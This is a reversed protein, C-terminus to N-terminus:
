EEQERVKSLASAVLGAPISVVGLGLMLIVFTFARGGATVPYVDGYGVTTLTTVAWWMSHFVSAFAEPQAEQEFYYIGVSAFYILLLTVLFFLVIEERAIQLARHFRHVARSYRALKLTRCLRMFRLARISRLDVRSAAYFPLISMLDILGYFSFIFALKRRAVAVRVVYEITFVTVTVVEIGRLWQQASDSLDPLTEISFTILSIVILSQIVLDFIRGRKSANNEVIDSLANANV